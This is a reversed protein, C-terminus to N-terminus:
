SLSRDIRPHPHHHLFTRRLSLLPFSRSHSLLETLYHLYHLTLEHDLYMLLRYGHVESAQQVIFKGEEDEALALLCVFNQVAGTQHLSEEELSPEGRSIWYDGASTIVRSSTRKPPQPRRPQEGSDVSEASDAWPM